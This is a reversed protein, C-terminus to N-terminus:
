GWEGTGAKRRGRLDSGFTNDRLLYHGIFHSTLKGRIDQLWSSIWISLLSRWPLLLVSPVASFGNFITTFRSLFSCWDQFLAFSHLQLLDLLWNIFYWWHFWSKKRVCFYDRCPNQHKLTEFLYPWNYQNFYCIPIM